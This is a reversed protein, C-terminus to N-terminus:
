PEGKRDKPKISLGVSQKNESNLLAKRSIHWLRVCTTGTLECVWYEEVTV